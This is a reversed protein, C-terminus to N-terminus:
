SKEEFPEYDSDLLDVEALKRGPWLAISKSTTLRHIVEVKWVFISFSFIMVHISSLYWWTDVERDFVIEWLPSVVVFCSSLILCLSAARSLWTFWIPVTGIEDGCDNLFINPQAQQM